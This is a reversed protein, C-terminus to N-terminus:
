KANRKKWMVNILEMAKPPFLKLYTTLLPCWCSISGIKKEYFKSNLRLPLCIGLRVQKRQLSMTTTACSLYRSIPQLGKMMAYKVTNGQCSVSGAMKLPSDEMKVEALERKIKALDLEIGIFPWLAKGTESLNGTWTVKAGNARNSLPLSLRASIGQEVRGSSAKVM